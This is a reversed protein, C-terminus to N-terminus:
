QVKVWIFDYADIMIEPGAPEGTLLNRGEPLQVSVLKTTVNVVFYVVDNTEDNVRKLGFLGSGLDIVEQRAFPSFAKEQKRVMLMQQLKGYIAKRRTSTELESVIQDYAFKERNIRRNIGSALLGERDNQSGLLSHYYIAPVGIVSLLIAHAAIMKKVQQEESTDEDKNVLADSYNINLEYITQSGDPNAKYSVRGGNAEVKTALLQREAETLIGETPRMGIGDHSALFNFFTASDSVQDITKAWATLKTTDHTTLSFLVLPPLSFQYIMHAENTRDGFYSMNEQHPVNVETIVQTNPSVEDLLLRWLQIVAHTEPLHICSTGSAKWLFGIADLRISSGGQYAYSILIDTLEKLVPFHAANVDVQDESFTTWATKEGMEGEYHHFLLSTRPRVVQTADFNPDEPIFYNAYQEDGSLYGQFWRSSRSIHNAVFDFMMRYHVSLAEVDNWDGLDPHIERYDTVSFGDDSTYPFMPLLHVDTIVDGVQHQLFKLLTQLTPTGQEYISDGYTILYVNEESVPAKVSWKKQKWDALLQLMEDLYYAQYAEGYIEKLLKEIKEKVTKKMLDDGIIIEAYLIGESPNDM